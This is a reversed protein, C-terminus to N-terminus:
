SRSEELSSPHRANGWPLMRRLIDNRDIFHHKLAAAVHIAVVAALIWFLTGHVAEALDQTQESPAVINPVPVLHFWEFPFNAASNIVWGSLPMAFLLLYIALHGGHAAWREWPKFEAPLRPRPNAFRWLVRIIVLGLITLGISKHWLFVEVKTPSFGMQEATFSLSAAAVILLAIAWHLFQAVAGWREPTNFWRM